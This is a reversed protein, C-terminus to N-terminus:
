LDGNLPLSIIATEDLKLYLKLSWESKKDKLMNGYWPSLILAAVSM